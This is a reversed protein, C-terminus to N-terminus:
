KDDEVEMEGGNEEMEVDESEKGEEADEHDGGASASGSESGEEAEEDEEDDDGMQGGGSGGGFEMFRAVAEGRFFPDCYEEFRDWASVVGCNELVVEATLARLGDDGAEQKVKKIFNHFKMKEAGALRCEDESVLCANLAATIKKRNLGLGILVLETGRDGFPNADTARYSPIEVDKVVRDHEEQKDSEDVGGTGAAIRQLEEVDYGAETIAADFPMGPDLTFHRGVSAQKAAEEQKKKAAAEEEQRKINSPCTSKSCCTTSTIEEDDEVDMKDSSRTTKKLMEDQVLPGEDSFVHESIKGFGKLAEYLKKPEFPRDARFIVSSIGYRETEPIHKGDKALEQMWGASVSAQELSFLRTDLVAAPNVTGHETWIVQALPNLKRVLNEILSKKHTPCPAAAPATKEQKQTSSTGCSKSTCATKKCSSSAVKAGQESSDAPAHDDNGGIPNAGGLLLDLKNLLIVNAFEIQTILLDVISKDLDEQGADTKSAEHKTWKSTHLDDTSQLIEWISAADVVTVMTDLRCSKQLAIAQVAVKKRAEPSLVPPGAAEEEQMDEDDDEEDGTKKAMEELEALSHCFTQAVPVPEAIGTSEIILYDFRRSGDEMKTNALEAVQEVLDERLTCCACGNQLSVMKPKVVEAGPAKAGGPGTKGGSANKKLQEKTVNDIALSDVNLSAMDNVVLAIRKGDNNNLLHTLTTTKGSGLFGSLVTVPLRSDDEEGPAQNQAKPDSKARKAGSHDHEDPDSTCGASHAHAAQRKPSNSLM